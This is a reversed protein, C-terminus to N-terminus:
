LWHQPEHLKCQDVASMLPMTLARQLGGQSRCRSVRTSLMSRVPRVECCADVARAALFGDWVLMCCLPLGVAICQEGEQVYTLRASCGEDGARWQGLRVQPPPHLAAQPVAVVAHCPENLPDHGSPGLPAHVLSHEPSPQGAALSSQRSSSTSPCPIMTLQLVVCLLAPTMSSLFTLFSM